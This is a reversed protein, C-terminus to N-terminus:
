GTCKHTELTPVRTSPRSAGSSKLRRARGRWGMSKLRHHNLGAAISLQRTLSEWLGVDRADDNAPFKALWSSGDIERFGAKPRTGGLSAGPVILQRIWKRLQPSDSSDGREIAEAVAELEGLDTVPPAGLGRPDLYYDNDPDRLRLAGMRSEDNVGALYDWDRLKRKNRGEERAEIAERRDMLLKGWRDPSCDQFCPTVRDAGASASHSGGFLPLQPDLQFSRVDGADELWSSAYRFGISYGTKSSLRDLHGVLTAGGLTADDIWVEIMKPGIM